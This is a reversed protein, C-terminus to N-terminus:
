MESKFPRNEEFAKLQLYFEECCYKKIQLPKKEDSLDVLIENIFDPDKPCFEHGYKDNLKDANAQSHKYNLTGILNNKVPTITTGSQKPPEEAYFKIM